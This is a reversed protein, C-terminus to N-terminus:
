RLSELYELHTDRRAERPRDEDRLTWLPGPPTKQRLLDESSHAPTPACLEPLLAKWFTRQRSREFTVDPELSRSSREPGRIRGWGLLSDRCSGVCQVFCKCHSTDFIRTLVMLVVMQAALAGTPSTLWRSTPPPYRLLM